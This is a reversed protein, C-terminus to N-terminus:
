EASVGASWPRTSAVRAPVPQAASNSRAYAVPPNLDIRHFVIGTDPAAPRLTMTVKAGSHLGVGTARILSKLTRQKLM